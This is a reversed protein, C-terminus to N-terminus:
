RALWQPGVDAPTLVRNTAPADVMQDCGVDRKEGRPQNDIDLQIKNEGQAAGIVPSQNVPRLLGGEGRKLMPDAITVGARPAEGEGAAINGMWKWGEGERGKFLTGGAGPSLLNNAIIIERPLLTRKSSGMGADLEICPGKSDVITNFAIVCARAQFYGNLPSDVIGATIWIGGREVGEIYNNIILHDQGIVRIGGTGKKHLGLFFNAEVTCNNGHRLTLMGACQRFTNFRYLNGCSKNSVVELEGDCRDFLNHEVETACTNMSQHSYGIRITEGGNEGLPPRPGFHNHHVRHRAPRRPDDAEIQLTPGESSKGALYCHDIRNNYGFLHVFFKHAGDVVACQTLRNNSGKIAIGDKVQSGGKLMLGSVVGYQGEVLLSSSGVLVVKGPTQARLTLPQRETGAAVFHLEQDKWEGDQLIIEDGPGANVQALEKASAVRFEGALSPAAIALLIIWRMMRPITGGWTM